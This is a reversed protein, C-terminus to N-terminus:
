GARLVQQHRLLRMKMRLALAPFALQEGGHHLGHRRDTKYLMTGLVSMGVAGSARLPTVSRTAQVDLPVDAEFAVSPTHTIDRCLRLSTYSKISSDCPKAIEPRQGLSSRSRVEQHPSRSVAGSM